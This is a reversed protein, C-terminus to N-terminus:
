GFHLLFLFDAYERKKISTERATGIHAFKKLRGRFNSFNFFAKHWVEKYSQLKVEQLFLVDDFPKNHFFNYPVFYTNKKERDCEKTSTGKSYSLKKIYNSEVNSGTWLTSSPLAV